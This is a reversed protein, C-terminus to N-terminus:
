LFFCICISFHHSGGSFSCFRSLYAWGPYAYFGEPYDLAFCLVLCFYVDAGGAHGLMCIAISRGLGGFCRFRRYLVFILVACFLLRFLYLAVIVCFISECLHWVCVKLMRVALSYVTKRQLSSAYCHHKISQMSSITHFKDFKINKWIYELIINVFLNPILM